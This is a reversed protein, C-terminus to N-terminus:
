GAPSRMTTTAATRHLAVRTHDRPYPSAAVVAAADLDGAAWRSCLGAFGALEARIRAAAPRDLVAGHGPVVTDPADDLLRGLTVPWDLPHSDGFSPPAGEELLDGAFVVEADPISVTLDGDTHGPGFHGLVVPRGGVVLGASDPVRHDAPVVAGEGFETAREPLWDAFGVREGAGDAALREACRRHAWIASSAFVANGLCHDIHFHTNVVDTVPVPIVRRLEAALERGEALSARTDILLAAGDGVVLGVNLDFSEWRRVYVEPGVEDWQSSFRVTM